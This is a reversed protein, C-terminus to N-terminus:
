DPEFGFIAPILAKPIGGNNYGPKMMAISRITRLTDPDGKIGSPGFCLNQLKCGLCNTIAHEIDKQVGPDDEELWKNEGPRETFDISVVLSGEDLRPCLDTSFINPDGGKM